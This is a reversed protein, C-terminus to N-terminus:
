RSKIEKEIAALDSKTKALVARQEGTPASLTGTTAGSITFASLLGSLRQRVPQVAGRGGGRGGGGAGGLRLELAQLRAAEDGTAAARRAALDKVLADVKAQLDMVEVVFAERAKHQEPTVTSTPDVRVEFTRSGTAVGDVELTVKFTGPAVHPGRLGIDLAPIPLQVVGARAAGGGGRGM